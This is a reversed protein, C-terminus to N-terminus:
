AKKLVREFERGFEKNLERTTEIANKLIEEPKAKGKTRVYIEANNALPHPINYGAMEVGTEQLIRKQLLNCVTNGIGEIELKLENASRKAVKVKM